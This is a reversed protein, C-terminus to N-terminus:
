CLVLEVELTDVRQLGRPLLAGRQAREGRYPALDAGKLKTTRGGAVVVLRQSPTFATVAVVRETASKAAPVGIIKNGKDLAPTPLNPM